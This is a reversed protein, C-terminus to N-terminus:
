KKLGLNNIISLYRKKDILKVYNLLKRRQAILMILGRRSSFDKNHNNLHQTLIKVRETILACQVEVSGTDNETTAFKNILDKKVFADLM